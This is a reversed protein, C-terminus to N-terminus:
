VADLSLKKSVPLMTRSQKDRESLSFRIARYAHNSLIWAIGVFKSSFILEFLAFMYPTIMGGWREKHLRM